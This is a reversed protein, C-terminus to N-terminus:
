CKARIPGQGRQKCILCQVDIIMSTTNHIPNGPIWSLKYLYKIYRSDGGVVRTQKIPHWWAVFSEVELWWIQWIVVNYDDSPSRWSFPPTGGDDDENGGQAKSKLDSTQWLEKEMKRVLFDNRTNDGQREEGVQANSRGQWAQFM